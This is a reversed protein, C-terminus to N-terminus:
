IKSGAKFSGESSSGEQAPASYFGFNESRRVYCNLENRLYVLM